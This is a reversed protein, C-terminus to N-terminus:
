LKRAGGKEILNRDHGFGRDNEQGEGHDSETKEYHYLLYPANRTSNSNKYLILCFKYLKGERNRGRRRGRRGSRLM